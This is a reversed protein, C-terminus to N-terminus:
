PLTAPMVTPSVAPSATSTPASTEPAVTETPMAEITKLDQIGTKVEALTSSLQERLEKLDVSSAPTEQASADAQGSILQNLNLIWAVIIVTMIVGVGLGIILRQKRESRHHFSADADHVSHGHALSTAGMPASFSIPEAAKRSRTTRKKKPAAKKRTSSSAISKTRPM